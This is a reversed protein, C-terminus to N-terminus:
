VFSYKDDIWQLSWMQGAKIVAKSKKVKLLVLKMRVHNQIADCLDSVTRKGKKFLRSNREHWVYYVSAALISRNIFNWITNTFPYQALKGVIADLRNPLGRFIVKSKVMKWIQASYECQFFLHHISDKVKDCLPCIM